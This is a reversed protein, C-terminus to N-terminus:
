VMGSLSEFTAIIEHLVDRQTLFEDKVEKGKADSCYYNDTDECKEAGFACQHVTGEILQSRQSNYLFM